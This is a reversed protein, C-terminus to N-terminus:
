DVSPPDCSWCKRPQMATTIPTLPVPGQTCQQGCVHASEETALPLWPVITRGSEGASYRPWWRIGCQMYHRQSSVAPAAFMQAVQQALCSGVQMCKTVFRTLDFVTRKKKGPSFEFSESDFPRSMPM